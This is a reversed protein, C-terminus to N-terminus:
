PQVSKGKLLRAIVETIVLIDEPKRLFADAGARRSETECDSASFMIIPTHKRHRLQRARRVLELGSVGPLDNDFLLLDYHSNSEIVSLAATGDECIEVSWGELELTDKVANILMKNDEVYLIITGQSAQNTEDDPAAHHRCRETKIISRKRPLITTRAHLLHKHRTNLLGTLNQHHKLGLLQAARTVGGGAEKLAREILCAEYRHVAERISFGEWTSPVPLAAVLFLVRRACVSLRSLVGPNRSTALLNAAREYTASLEATALREGLEEIITLASQGAGEFDGAQSAVEVARQLTHQARPHHNTRALAIGHTTLAEALLSQEGGNELIHIASRALKEAAAARGEALLVRARTEDVQAIHVRDKLSTFLAQARDLHEHADRFKGITSFLFGLNNEVCALHRSQGAQEFHFSAAAYEVLARDTYDERCEATRLYNLVNAFGNHFKGKLAHNSIQEFLPAAEIHIRLADNFRKASREVLASNLLARAKQESDTNALWRLSEQLMVRAEDFAGERWYCVALDIRAEAAKDADLSVEFLSISESILDKATEQTGEIQKTSGIYGTLVGARLLVEASTAQNLKDLKPREGVRQWLEGMAERAREYNGLSAFHKSLQCRLYARENHDLAPDAIKNALEKTLNM